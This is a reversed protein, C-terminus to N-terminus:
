ITVAITQFFVSVLARSALDVLTLWFKNVNEQVCDKTYSKKNRNYWNDVMQSLTFMDTRRDSQMLSSCRATIRNKYESPTCPVSIWWFKEDCYPFLTKDRILPNKTCQSACFSGHLCLVCVCVCLAPRWDVEVMFFLIGCARFITITPLRTLMSSTAYKKFM